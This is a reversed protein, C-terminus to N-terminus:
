GAPCSAPSSARGAPSTSPGSRALDNLAAILQAVEEAWGPRDRAAFLGSGLWWDDYERARREYYARMDEGVVRAM